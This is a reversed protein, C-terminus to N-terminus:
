GTLYERYRLFGEGVGGFFVCVYVIESFRKQHQTLEGFLTLDGVNSELNRVLIQMCKENGCKLKVDRSVASGEKLLEFLM